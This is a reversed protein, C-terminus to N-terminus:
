AQFVCLSLFTRLNLSCLFSVRTFFPQRMLTLCFPNTSLDSQLYVLLGAPTYPLFVRTCVGICIHLFSIKLHGWVIDKRTDLGPFSFSSLTLLLSIVLEQSLLMLRWSQVVRWSWRRWRFCTLWKPISTCLLYLLYKLNLAACNWDSPNYAKKKGLFCLIHAYVLSLCQFYKSQLHM